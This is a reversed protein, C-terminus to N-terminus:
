KDRNFTPINIKSKFFRSAKEKLLNSAWDTVPELLYTIFMFLLATGILNSETFENIKQKAEEQSVKM